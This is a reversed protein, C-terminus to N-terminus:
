HLWHAFVHPSPSWNSGVHNKGIYRQGKTGWCLSSWSLPTARELPELFTKKKKGKLSDESVIIWHFLGMFFELAIGQAEWSGSAPVGMM